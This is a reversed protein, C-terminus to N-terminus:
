TQYANPLAGGGEKLWQSTTQGMADGGISSVTDGVGFTSNELLQNNKIKLNEQLGGM